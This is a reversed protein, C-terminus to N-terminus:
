CLTFDSFKAKNLTERLFQDGLFHELNGEEGMIAATQVEFVRNLLDFMGQPGLMEALPTSNRLDTLLMTVEARRPTMSGPDALVVELVRPSFYLGMTHRLKLRELQELVFDYALVCLSSVVLVLLPVAVPIVLGAHDWLAQALFWVGVVLAALAVLRKVPQRVVASLLGALLGGLLVIFLTPWRSLERLFEGHLAAAIINLHIEPGLMQRKPLVFPTDHEDHFIDATPGVLVLKDRFFAGSQYNDRWLKPALVDGIPHVKYGQGPANGYRFRHTATGLPIADSRGLKHLARAALSELIVQDSVVSGAQDSTQRFNARRVIGDFDQPINVYGVRDDQVLADNNAAPLVDANPTLLQLFDGRDTKQVGLSCGIVVRDRHEELARRLAADGPNSPEFVFDFVVARAGAASLKHILEAMVVRSWPFNSQLERLVPAAQLTEESFDSAEYKPRDIGILVLQPDVPTGRGMRTRVDQTYNEVEDLQVWHKPLREEDLLLGYLLGAVLTCFAIIGFVVLSRQSPKKM